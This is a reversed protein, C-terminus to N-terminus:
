VASTQRTCDLSLAVGQAMRSPHLPLAGADGKGLHATSGACMKCGARPLPEASGCIPISRFCFESFLLSTAGPLVETPRKRRSNM